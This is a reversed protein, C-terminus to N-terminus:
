ARELEKPQCCNIPRLTKYILEYNMLPVSFPLFFEQITFQSNYITVKKSKM